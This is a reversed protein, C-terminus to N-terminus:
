KYLMHADVQAHKSPSSKKTPKFDHVIKQVRMKACHDCHMTQYPSNERLCFQCEWNVLLEGDDGAAVPRYVGDDYDHNNCSGSRGGRDEMPTNHPTQPTLPTGSPTHPTYPTVEGDRASGLGREGRIHSIRGTSSTRAIQGASAASGSGGGSGSGRGRPTVKFGLPAPLDPRAGTTIVRLSKLAEAPDVPTPSAAASPAKVRTPTLSASGSRSQPTTPKSSSNSSRGDRAEQSSPRSSDSRHESAADAAEAAAAATALVHLEKPRSGNAGRAYPNGAPAPRPPTYRSPPLPIEEDEDADAKSERQKHERSRQREALQAAVRMTQESESGNHSHEVSHYMGGGGGGGDQGAIKNLQSMLDKMSGGLDVGDDDRGADTGGVQQGDFDGSAGFQQSGWSNGLDEEAKLFPHCSLEEATPRNSSSHQFCWAIAARCDESVAESDYPPPGSWGQLLLHLQVMSGLNRDKWPPQGTLMQIMTCGVAWVDGKRGYKSQALVEPAMFYPTGKISETEQTKDLSTKTSAGFDALKVTGNEHVLVNGGKIDRHIIGKEHLFCLGCLIQRSYAQMVREPFSGFNKLMQAVSGGPVWEQFINLVAESEDVAAGIYRVINDHKCDRM